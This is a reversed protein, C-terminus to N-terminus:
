HKISGVLIAKQQQKQQQHQEGQQLVILKRKQKDLFTALSFINHKLKKQPVKHQKWIIEKKKM